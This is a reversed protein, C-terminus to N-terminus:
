NDPAVQFDALLPCISRVLFQGALAYYMVSSPMSLLFVANWTIIASVDIADSLDSMVRHANKNEGEWALAIVPLQLM